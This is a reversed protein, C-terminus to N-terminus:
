GAVRQFGLPKISWGSLVETWFRGSHSAIAVPWALRFGILFDERCAATHRLDFTLELMEFRIMGM